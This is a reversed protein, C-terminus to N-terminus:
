DTEICSYIVNMLRPLVISNMCDIHEAHFIAIRHDPDSAAVCMRKGDWGFCGKPVLSGASAPDRMVRVGYAYEYGTNHLVAFQKIQHDNLLTSKMLEVSRSSLIRKGSKGVGCNALADMLLIFDDVTSHLGAGGSEYESGFRFENETSPIEIACRGISDYTYQSAIRGPNIEEIRFGTDKMGLPEFINKKMYDSLRMGSILEVLGGLVDHSLGYNYNEGPNFALPDQPLARIVDLTPCKGSSSIKVHNIAPRNINYDLGSTM